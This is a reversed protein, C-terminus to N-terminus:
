GRYYRKMHQQEQIVIFFLSHKGFILPQASGLMVFVTLSMPCPEQFPLDGLRQGMESPKEGCHGLLPFLYMHTQSTNPHCWPSVSSSGLLASERRKGSGTHTRHFWLPCPLPATWAPVEESCPAVALDCEGKMWSCFSANGLGLRLTM